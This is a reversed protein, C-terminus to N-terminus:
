NSSHSMLVSSRTGCPLNRRVGSFTAPRWWIYDRTLLAGNIPPCYVIGSFTYAIGMRAGLESPNATLVAVLPAQLAIFMGLFFGCLTSIVVVSAKTALGIMSFVLATSSLASIIVMNIVGISQVFLGPVLRGLFSSGNLIVLAYFSFEEGLGHHISDLQLYFLPFFFGVSFVLLSVSMITFPIESISRLFLEKIDPLIKPPPLRTRILLCASLLMVSVLGASARVSGEFGLNSHNLLNNLMIPHVIAGLASGSVAFMMVSALRRRFYHSVVAVSPVYVMGGGLGLGVGQALFCQYLNEPKAFSLMFLSFSILTSGGIILHYFYGRDYLRGAVLGTSIVLFTNVSGIWSIASPSSNTIYIRTYYDQYVGFSTSYGFGCFQLLVAGVVTSWGRWGGEPYEIPPSTPELSSEEADVNQVEM